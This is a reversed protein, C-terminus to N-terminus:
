LYIHNQVNLNAAIRKIVNRAYDKQEDTYDTYVVDSEMFNSLLHDVIDWKIQKAETNKM